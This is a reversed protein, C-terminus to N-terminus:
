STVKQHRLSFRRRSSLSSYFYLFCIEKSPLTATATKRRSSSGTRKPLSFRSIHIDVVEMWCRSVAPIQRPFILSIYIKPNDQFLQTKNWKVTSYYNCCRNKSWNRSRMELQMHLLGACRKSAVWASATASRNCAWKEGMWGGEAWLLVWPWLLGCVSRCCSHHM